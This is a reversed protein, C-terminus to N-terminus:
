SELCKKDRLAQMIDAFVEEESKEGDVVIWHSEKSQELYSNRIAQHFERKEKEFRDQEQGLALSRQGKRRESEEVSVDVYIILDPELGSTAYNNLWGIDDVALGRGASQFAVTSPTFRDSIVWADRELAPRIVTDVHQARAAEYVLLECRPTPIEDDDRLLIKRLEEALPTGGPERTIVFSLSRENLAETLKKMQTSKGSADLGEFVIFAM